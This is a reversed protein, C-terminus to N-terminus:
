VLPEWLPRCRGGPTLQVMWPTPLYDRPPITVSYGPPDIFLQQPRNSCHLRWNLIITLWALFAFPTKWCFLASWIEAVTTQFYIRNSYNKILDDMTIDNHFSNNTVDCVINYHM